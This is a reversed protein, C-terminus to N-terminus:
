RPPRPARAAAVEELPEDLQAPGEPELDHRETGARTGGGGAGELGVVHQGEQAVAVEGAGAGLDLEETLAGGQGASGAVRASRM